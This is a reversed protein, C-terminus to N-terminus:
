RTLSRDLKKTTSFYEHWEPETTFDMGIRRLGSTEMDTSLRAIEFIERTLARKSILNLVTGIAISAALISGFGNVLAKLGPQHTFVSPDGAIYISALGLGFAILSIIVTQWTNLHRYPRRVEPVHRRYHRRGVSRRWAVRDDYTLRHLASWRGGPVPACADAGEIM